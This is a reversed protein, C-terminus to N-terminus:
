ITGSGPFGPSQKFFNYDQQYKELMDNFQQMMEPDQIIALAMHFLSLTFLLFLIGLILGAIAKGDFIGSNVKSVIACTIAASSFIIGFWITLSAPIALIGFIISATAFRNKYPTTTNM